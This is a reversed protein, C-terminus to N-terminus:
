LFSLPSMIILLLSLSVSLFAMLAILSFFPNSPSGFTIGFNLGYYCHRLLQCPDLNFISNYCCCCLGDSRESFFHSKKRLLPQTLVVAYICWKSEFSDCTAFAQYPSCLFARHQKSYIRSAVVRLVFIYLWKGGM